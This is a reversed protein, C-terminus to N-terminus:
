SLITTHEVRLPSLMYSTPISAEFLLHQRATAWGLDKRRAVSTPPANSLLYVWPVNHQM